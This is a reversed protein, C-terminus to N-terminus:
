LFHAVCRESRVNINHDLFGFCTFIDLYWSKALVQLCHTSIMSKGLPLWSDHIEMMTLLAFALLVQFWPGLGFPQWGHEQYIQQFPKWNATTVAHCVLSAALPSPTSVSWGVQGWWELPRVLLSAFCRFIITSIVYACATKWFQIESRVLNSSFM